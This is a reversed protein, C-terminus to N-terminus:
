SFLYDLAHQFVADDATEVLKYFLRYIEYLPLEYYYDDIIKYLIEPDGYEQFYDRLVDMKEDTTLEAWGGDPDMKVVTEINASLSNEYDPVDNQTDSVLYEIDSMSITYHSNILVKGYICVAILLISCLIRSFHVSKSILVSRRIGAKKIGRVHVSALLVATILSIVMGISILTQIRESYKCMNFAEYVLVPICTGSFLSIWNRERKISLVM